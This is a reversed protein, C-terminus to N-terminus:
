NRDPLVVAGFPSGGGTNDVAVATRIQGATLTLAGSDIVVNITNAPCVRVQYTGAPVALYNSAVAYPVDSLTPTATSLDAGPATVYIDVAPAAPAAHVLRLKIQGTGPASNNDTLLWPEITAVLNRAIVTYDTNAGLAPSVDIVVLSPDASARVKINRAGAAVSLYQSFAKYPVNAAVVQGDVLVDVAPANPSAHLVRLNATAQPTPTVPNDDDSCGAGFALLAVLALAIPTSRKM